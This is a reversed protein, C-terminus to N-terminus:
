VEVEKQQEIKEVLAILNTYLEQRQEMAVVVGSFKYYDCITLWSKIESLIDSLQGISSIEVMIEDCTKGRIQCQYKSQLYEKLGKTMKVFCDNDELSIDKLEKQFRKYINISVKKKKIIFKILTISTSILFIILVLYFIYSYNFSRRSETNLEGKYLEDRDIEDLTSNVNIELEKDDLLITKKGTEFSRLTLIYGTDTNDISVIEFDQFKERIEDEDYMVTDIKINILDGVYINRQKAFISISSIFLLMIILLIIRKTRRKKM